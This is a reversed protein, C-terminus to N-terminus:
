RSELFEYQRRPLWFVPAFVALEEYFVGGELFLVVFGRGAVLAVQFAEEAVQMPAMFVFSAVFLAGFLFDSSEM